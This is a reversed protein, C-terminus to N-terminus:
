PISSWPIITRNLTLPLINKEEEFCEEGAGRAEAGQQNSVPPEKLPALASSTHLQGSSEMQHPTESYM